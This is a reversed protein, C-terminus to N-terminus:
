QNAGEVWRVFRGVHVGRALALRYESAHREASEPNKPWQGILRKLRPLDILRSALPSAELREIDAAIRERRADLSRFWTAAHAGYRREDLIEQPLRDALVRRAFSRQVGGQCFMPEPVALLFELLRRDAHPDRLEVGYIDPSRGQADRGVQNHDFLRYARHRAGNWDRPGFWPDFGQEGWQRALDLEAILAPNLASYHAVSDPDHGRLRHMLRRLWDPAAPKIVNGALTRALSRDTERANARWERTFARWQGGRLLAPLAFRGAWSLGFNGMTGILLGPHGSAAAADCLYAWSGHGAPGLTPLDARAFYRSDDNELAHVTTPAIFRVDLTPHFRGLAQMKDREDWYKFPGLDLRPADAPPVVTLCTISASEGLRAATAAIASSDLGGSAAIAVDPTDRLTAAVAQDFLERARELYDEDRAYPPPADLDPQWYKRERVGERDITVLSRSPVREIGRYFTRRPDHGLNVALFNALALEDIERPVGPLSLLMGLTTAFVVFERARYFFLPAKGLCDRGLTLRGAESKWLAFAFAGLCRAVGADGWREIARRILVADPTARIAAPMLGLAAGLEDRNDLRALAAFLAARGDISGTQPTGHPASASSTRQVFLAQQTRRVIYRERRSGAVARLVADEIEPALPNGGLAVAGAFASVVL